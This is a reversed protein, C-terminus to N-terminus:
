TFMYNHYESLDHTHDSFMPVNTSQLKNSSFVVVSCHNIVQEEADKLWLHHELMSAHM